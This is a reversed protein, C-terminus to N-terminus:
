YCLADEPLERTQRFDRGFALVEEFAPEDKLSGSVKTLWNQGAAALNRQIKVVAQEVAELRAEITAEPKM